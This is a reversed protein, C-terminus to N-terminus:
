WAQGQRKFADPKSGLKMSAMGASSWSSPGEGGGRRGGAASSLLPSSARACGGRSFESLGHAAGSREAGVGLERRGTGTEWSTAGGGEGERWFWFLEPICCGEKQAPGRFRIWGGGSVV